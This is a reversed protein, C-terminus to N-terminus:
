GCAGPPWSVSNQGPRGAAELAAGPPTRFLVGRAAWPHHRGMTEAARPVSKAARGVEAVVNRKCTSSFLLKFVAKPQGPSM